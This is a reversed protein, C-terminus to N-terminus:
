DCRAYEYVSQQPNGLVVIPDGVVEPPEEKRDDPRAERFGVLVGQGLGDDVEDGLEGLLNRLLRALRRVDPLSCAVWPIAGV